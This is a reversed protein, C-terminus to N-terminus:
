KFLRRSKDTICAEFVTNKANRLQELLDWLQEENAPLGTTRFIDIDIVVSVVGPKVPEILAQNIIGECKIEALPIKLQMFYGSLGQPLVPSLQPFTRLYDGFNTLPLPIDIRNVYRVAVRTIETPRTVARYKDWLRRAEGSFVRWHPYRALRSFTFGNTRAQYIQLGDPSRYLYGIPQSTATAIANDDPGFRLAGTNANIKDTTPYSAEEGVHAHQLDDVATTPTVQIDILAETIPANPYHHDTTM